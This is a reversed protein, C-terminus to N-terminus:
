GKGHDARGGRAAQAREGDGEREALEEAGAEGHHRGLQLAVQRQRRCAEARQRGAEEQGERECLHRHAHGEVAVAHARGRAHQQCQAHGRRQEEHQRGIAPRGHQRLQAQPQGARRHEHAQHVMGRGRQRRLAVDREEPAAVRQAHHACQQRCRRQAPRHVGDSPPHRDRQGRQAHQEGADAHPALHTVLAMRVRLGLRGDGHEAGAGAQERQRRHPRQNRQADCHRGAGGKAVGPAAGVQGVHEPQLGTRAAHGQRHQAQAAEAGRQQQGPQHPACRELAAHEAPRQQSENRSPRQRHRGGCAQQRVERQERDQARHAHQMREHHRM